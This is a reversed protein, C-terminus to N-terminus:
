EPFAEVVIACDPDEFLPDVESCIFCPATSTTTIAFGCDPCRTRDEATAANRHEQSHRVLLSRMGLLALSLPMLLLQFWGYHDRLDRLWTIFIAASTLAVAFLWYRAPYGFEVALGVAALMVLYRDVRPVALYIALAAADRGRSAYAFRTARRITGTHTQKSTTHRSEVVSRSEFMPACQDEIMALTPSADSLWASPRTPDSEVVSWPIAMAGSNVPCPVGLWSAGGPRVISELWELTVRTAYGWHTRAHVFNSVASMVVRGSTISSQSLREISKGSFEYGAEVLVLVDPPVSLSCLEAVGTDIVHSTSADAAVTTWLVSLRRPVTPPRSDAPALVVVVDDPGLQGALTALTDTVEAASGVGHVLVACRVPVHGLARQRPVLSLCCELLLIVAPVALLVASVLYWSDLTVVSEIPGRTM